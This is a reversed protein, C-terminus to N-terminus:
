LRCHTPTRLIRLVDNMSFYHLPPTKLTYKKLREAEEELPKRKTRITKLTDQMLLIKKKLYKYEPTQPPLKHTLKLLFFKIFSCCEEEKEADSNSDADDEGLDSVVARYVKNEKLLLFDGLNTERM